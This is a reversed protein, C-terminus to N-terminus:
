LSQITDLYVKFEPYKAILRAVISETDPEKVTQFYSQKLNLVLRDSRSITSKIYSLLEGAKAQNAESDPTDSLAALWMFAVLPKKNETCGEFAMNFYVNYDSFESGLDLGNKGSLYILSGIKSLSSCTNTTPYRKELLLYNNIANRVTQADIQDPYFRLAIYSVLLPTKRSRGVDAAFKGMEFIDDETFETTGFVGEGLQMGYDFFVSVLLEGASARVDPHVANNDLITRATRLSEIKSAKTEPTLPTQYVDDYAIGLDNFAELSVGTFVLVGNEVTAQTNTIGTTSNVIPTVEPIAPTVPTNEVPRQNYLWLGIGIVTIILFGM